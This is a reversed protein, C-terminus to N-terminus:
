QVTIRHAALPMMRWEFDNRSVDILRRLVIQTTQPSLLEAELNIGSDRLRQAAAAVTQRDVGHEDDALVAIIRVVFDPLFEIRAVLEEPLRDLHELLIPSGRRDEIVLM